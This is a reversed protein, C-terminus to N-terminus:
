RGILSVSLDFFNNGAFFSVASQAHSPNIKKVEEPMRVGVFKILEVVDVRGDRNGKTNQDIEQDAHGRLGSLVVMTFVGHGDKGDMAEEGNSAAALIASGTDLAATGVWTRTVDRTTFAGAHCTDILVANRSTPLSSLMDALIAQTLATKKIAKLTLEGTDYPLFYYKGDDTVGHGALFILVVDKPKAVGAIKKFVEKINSLTAEQEVLVMTWTEEFLGQRVQPMLEAIGKADNVANVLTPIVKNRYHNIGVSLVYLNPAREPEPAIVYRIVLQIPNGTEVVQDADYATVTILNDGPELAVSREEIRAPGEGPLATSRTTVAALNRKLVVKGIGGGQDEVGIRLTVEAADVTIAQDGGALRTKADNCKDQICWALLKIHPPRRETVVTKVRTKPIGDALDTGKIKLTVLDPRYFKSHLQGSLVFDPNAARGRNVHYGVLNEAGPSHDFYGEPTWAIWRGDAIPFFALVEAGNDRQYWRMSGDGLAALAFRGDATLNVAWAPAQLPLKWVTKGAQLLRLSYDAGLLIRSGDATATVARSYEGQDLVVPTGRITPRLSNRWNQVSRPIVPKTMKPLPQPHQTFQRNDLDFRFPSRGKQDMGFDIVFGNQAVAFTGEFADRFDAFSRRWVSKKLTKLDLIGVSPEATTFAITHDPLPILDTVTDAAIAVEKMRSKNAMDWARVLKSGRGDSYTGAALVTNDVWAVASLEGPRGPVGSLQDVPKLGDTSLITVVAANRLGVAIRDGQPSIAIRWPPRKSSFTHEASLTFQTDYLRVKGDSAATVLRGDALFEAAVVADHYANDEAALTKAALDLIRLHGGGKRATGIALFRGDRSYALAHVTGPLDTIRGILQATATDFVYIVAAGDWALGTEGAVVVTEKVPSAAVTYLRGEGNAAIPVRLVRLLGSNASWLRATKDDSVTLLRGDHTVTAKNVIATHVGAEIRLIPETPPEGAYAHNIVLIVVLLIFQMM